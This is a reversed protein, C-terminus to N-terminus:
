PREENPARTASRLEREQAESQRRRITDGAVTLLTVRPMVRGGVVVIFGTAGPRIRALGLRARLAKRVAHEAGELGSLADRALSAADFAEADVSSPKLQTRALYRKAFDAGAPDGFAPDVVDAFVANESIREAHDVISVQNWGSGGLFQIGKGGPRTRPAVGWFELFPALRRVVLAQEPIFLADFDAKPTAKTPRKLNAPAGVLQRAVDHFDKTHTDYAVVRVVTGGQREFAAAMASAAEQGGDTDPRLVALRAVGLETRAHKALAETLEEPSARTKLAVDDATGGLTATTPMVSALPLVPVRYRRLVELAAATEKRGIPGLVVAVHDQLVLAEAAAAASAADGGTDRVILRVDSAGEFAVELAARAGKGLRAFDGSLPLLVGVAHVDVRNWESARATAADVQVREEPTLDAVAGLVAAAALCAAPDPELAAGDCAAQFLQRPDPPTVAVDVEGVDPGTEAADDGTAEAPGGDAGRTADEGTAVVADEVESTPVPQPRASACGLVDSVLVAAGLMFTRWTM